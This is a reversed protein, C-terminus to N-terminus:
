LNTQFLGKLLSQVNEPTGEQVTSERLSAIADLEARNVQGYAIPYIRIDSQELVQKVQDFVLGENAEGDTLLLVYYRGNPDSARKELLQGLAVMTGDYMATAGDAQLADIGALFRQHQLTDFPALPVLLQPRDSFTVMGVSNGANIETSAIRLGDKVAQMPQGEMSGSSDIVVMLYVADGGEKQQKWYTQAALLVDGQPTPPQKDSRDIDIFGQETALKQALPSLAFQAFEALAAAQQPNNWGFGVLPNRHPIGFPVFEIQQFEPLQKLAVFNQYELPFAQMQDPDRIFLEQLDLTTTTTTTVNDQFAAFLSNVEPSELDTQTLPAGDEMHGAARWFLTYLLNLSTSSTYPNPYGLSVKGALIQELLRDFSLKGGTALRQYTEAQVVFGAANPVLQPQVPVVPIGASKVMEVWLDNSPSYGTPKAAEANLLRAATGSPIKRIGVQIVEGSDLRVQQQNFRDAVDVLWRENTRDANAKESSSFIEVYVTNADGSPQAGFLPFTNLEPLPEVISDIAYRAAVQDSVTRDDVELSPVIKELVVQTAEEPSSASYNAIGLFGCSWLGLLLGAAIAGAIWGKLWGLIRFRKM